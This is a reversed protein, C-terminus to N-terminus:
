LHEGSYPIHLDDTKGLTNGAFRPFVNTNM